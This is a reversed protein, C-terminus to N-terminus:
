QPTGSPRPAQMANRLIEAAPAPRYEPPVQFISDPLASTSIETLEQDLQMVPTEPDAAGGAPNNPAALMTIFLKTQNRLLVMTGSTQLEKGFEAVLGSGPMQRLIRQVAALPNMTGSSVLNYAAVERIAPKRAIESAKATWFRMEIRMMPGMGGAQNVPGDVTAVIEHEEGEIGQITATAGTNKTEVHTQIQAMVAKSGEPVQPMVSAVEDMLQQFGMTAYRKRGKDLLTIEKRTFDCISVSAGSSTFGKGNKFQLLTEEPVDTGRAEGNPRTEARYRLTVDAFLPSIALLALPFFAIGRFGPSPLM